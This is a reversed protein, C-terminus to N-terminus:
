KGFLKRVGEGVQDGLKAGAGTGVGPMVATGIAAGLMASRSLTVEPADLTGGLQLPVGVLKTGLDVSIRGSLVRAPSIFANGSAALVGSRAALNALTISAGSTSVQGALTDLQTEGGRSLGVTSVAKALDIGHVAAQRVTFSTQSQLVDALLAANATSARLGTNAELKGSLTKSPATLASVEVERTQLQAQLAFEGGPKAAPTFSVPGQVTGGGLTLKLDWTRQGAAPTAQAQLSAQTGAWAGQLLKFSLAQPWGEDDLTSEAQLTSSHGRLNVWTLGDIVARRPLWALDATAATAPRPSAAAQRKQLNSSLTNIARQSLVAQRVVLTAVVLRGGLLAAWQPRAEIRAVTLPPETRVRIEDLAVAPLPWLSVSIRGLQVPAGLATSAEQEIRQRFDDSGSWRQLAFAVAALVLLLGAAVLLLIKLIRVM